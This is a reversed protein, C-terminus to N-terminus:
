NPPLCHIFEKYNTNKVRSYMYGLADLNVDVVDGNYAVELDELHEELDFFVNKNEFRVLSSTANYIKVVITPNAEPLTNPTHLVSLESIWKCNQFGNVIRFDM